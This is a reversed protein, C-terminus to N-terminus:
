RGMSPFLLGKRWFTILGPTLLHPFRRVLFDVEHREVFMGSEVEEPNPHPLPRCPGTRFLTIFENGTACSGPLEFVRYLKDVRVRLEEELERFAAGLKSEGALVHGTASLDWCGPHRQKDAQRKQLYLKNRENFLLVFVSRHPLMLSHVTERPMVALPANEGDVVELWERSESRAALRGM